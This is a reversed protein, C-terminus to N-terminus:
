QLKSMAFESELSDCSYLVHVSKVIFLIVGVLEDKLLTQLRAVISTRM